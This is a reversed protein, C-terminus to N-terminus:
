RLDSIREGNYNPQIQLCKRWESRARASDGSKEYIVGLEYHADASNANKDLVAEFESAAEELKGDNIYIQGLVIHANELIEDNQSMELVRLLYQRATQGQGNLFYERAINFLLSDTEHVLLAQTFSAISKESEGLSAYSLGLLLPIDDAKYSAERAYELYKVALDAYYNFSSAEDKYFYARGLMYATQPKLTSSKSTIFALRLNNIAEDLYKKSTEFENEYQSLMFGAYGHYTRATNHFPNLKLIQASINYADTIGELTQENWKRSLEYVSDPAHLKKYIARISLFLSLFVTLSVFLIAAAIRLRRNKKHLVSESNGKM